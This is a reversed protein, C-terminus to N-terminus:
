DTSWHPISCTVYWCGFLKRSWGGAVTSMLNSLTYGIERANLYPVAKFHWITGIVTGGPLEVIVFRVLTDRVMGDTKLNREREIPLHIANTLYEGRVDPDNLLATLAPLDSHVVHRIVFNSEKIAVHIESKYQSM